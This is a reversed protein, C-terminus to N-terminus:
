KITDMQVHTCPNKINIMYKTGQSLYSEVGLLNKCEKIKQIGSIKM